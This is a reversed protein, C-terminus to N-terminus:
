MMQCCRVASLLQEVLLVNVKSEDCCPNAVADNEM